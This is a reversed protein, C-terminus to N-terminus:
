PEKYHLSRPVHDALLDNDNSSYRLASRAAKQELWPTGFTKEYEAFVDHILGASTSAEPGIDNSSGEGCAFYGKYLLVDEQVGKGREEEDDRRKHMIHQTLSNPTNKGDNTGSEALVNTLTSSPGCRDLSATVEFTLEENGPTAADCGEGSQGDDLV